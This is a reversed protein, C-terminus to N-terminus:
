RRSRGRKLNEEHTVLQLHTPNCCARHKCSRGGACSADLTHCLHDPELDDPVPGTALEYAVRSARCVRTGMRARGYGDRDLSATWPWCPGLWPFKALTPGERGVKRWFREASTSRPPLSGSLRAEQYHKDCLGRRLRGTGCRIGGISCQPGM